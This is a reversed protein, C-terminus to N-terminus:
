FASSRVGRYGKALALVKKHRKKTMISRKVRVM